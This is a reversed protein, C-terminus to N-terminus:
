LDSPNNFQNRTSNVLPIEKQNLAGSKVSFNVNIARLFSSRRKQGLEHNVKQSM